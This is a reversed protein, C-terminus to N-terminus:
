SGEQPTRRAEPGTPGTPSSRPMSLRVETGRGPTSRVEADGGHRTMRGVISSRLGQRDEPVRDPDFGQGRDRVFVELAAPTAEAYVDVAGAGSHRAANVMAERAALVLPRDRETLEVDGVCVVDVPVGHADEVEAAVERVASTLTTPGVEDSSFLWSRLDREQARALRAVTAPDSASRQILALTQLVSDHLHAAVDSREESRVRAEREESLDSSLRLLWPGLMLGIGVIAVAAAVGVDLAVSLSGSRLGFVVVASILLLVGVAIRLWATWGGDGVLARVPNIRAGEHRWRDRQARDAQVWLVAIGGAGIVLPAVALTRGTLLTIALLVGLAIAGVAVLPGHDVLRRARSTTRRGQRTAADGGPTGPAAFRQAPLVLWLGAYLVAGFGGCAVLVLLAARVGVTPLGLHRALGSAVGGLVADETARHARRPVYAAPGPAAVPPPPSTM